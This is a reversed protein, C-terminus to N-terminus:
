RKGDQRGPERKKGAFKPPTAVARGTEEMHRSYELIMIELMNSVSRREREAAVRLVEKVDPELRITLVGSKPMTPIL